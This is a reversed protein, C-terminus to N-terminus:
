KLLLELKAEVLKDVTEKFKPNALLEALKIQLSEEAEHKSRFQFVDLKGDLCYTGTSSDFVCDIADPCTEQVRRHKLGEAIAFCASQNGIFCDSGAIVMAAELLTLTEFYALKDKGGWRKSEEEYEEATGVFAADLGRHSLKKWPFAENRYRSTRNVVIQFLRKVAPVTLWPENGDALNRPSGVWDSQDDVLRSHQKHLSRFPRYDFDVYSGDHLEVSEIYDQAELLPQIVAMRKSTLSERIGPGQECFKISGGGKEKISPLAYILDGLDGAHAFTLTDKQPLNKLKGWLLRLSSDKCGHFVVAEMGIDVRRRKTEPELPPRYIASFQGNDYRFGHSHHTHAIANTFHCQPDVEDRTLADWPRRPQEELIKKYAEIRVWADQPYIGTGVMHTGNEVLNKNGDRELYSARAGMFAKGCSEYKACIKEFWDVTLPLNDPEFYYFADIDSRDTYIHKALQLFQFNCAKPWSGENPEINAAIIQRVAQMDTFLGQFNNGIGSPDVSPNACFLIKDAIKDGGSLQGMWKGLRDVQGRDGFYFPIVLLMRLAM